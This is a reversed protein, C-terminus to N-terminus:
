RSSLRGNVLIRLAVLGCRERCRADRKGGPAHQLDAAAIAPQGTAIQLLGGRHDGDIWVLVRNRPEGRPKRADIGAGSGEGIQRKGRVADIECEECPRQSSQLHLAHDIGQSTGVPHHRRRSRDNVHVRGRRGCQHFGAALREAREVGAIRGHPMRGRTRRYCGNEIVPEEVEHGGSVEHEVRVRVRDVLEAVVDRRVPPVAADAILGDIVRATNEAARDPTDSRAYDLV